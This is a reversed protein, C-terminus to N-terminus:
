RRRRVFHAPGRQRSWGFDSGRPFDLHYQWGDSDTEDSTTVQWPGDWRWDSSPLVISDRTIPANATGLRDSWIPRDTPLMRPGWKYMLFRQNEFCEETVPLAQGAAVKICGKSENSAGAPRWPYM